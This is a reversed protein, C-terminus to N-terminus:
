GEFNEGFQVRNAIARAFAEFKTGLRKDGLLNMGVDFCIQLWGTRFFWNFTQIYCLLREFDKMPVRRISRIYEFSIKVNPFNMTSAETWWHLKEHSSITRKKETYAQPHVRRFWLYEPIEYIRGMLGLEAVLVKDAGIFNGLIPTRRLSSTRIVGFCLIWSNYLDRIIASYREHPKRSNIKKPFNYNGIREGHENIRGSKSHCLVISQDQSLINICKLLYDPALIDDYAAWKFFEGKALKVVKGFNPAAGINRKNRYYRIRSNKEAYVHCIEKTNDTSANDSIILEFDPYTQALISDLAEELYKEGNYVPLGISIKPSKCTTDKVVNNLIKMM